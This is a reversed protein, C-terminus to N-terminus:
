TVARRIRYFKFTFRDETQKSDVIVIKGTM